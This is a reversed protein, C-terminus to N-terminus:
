VNCGVVRNWINSLIPLLFRGQINLSNCITGTIKWESVTEQLAASDTACESGISITDPWLFLWVHVPWAETWASSHKRWGPTNNNPIWGWGSDVLWDQDIGIPCPNTFIHSLLVGSNLYMHIQLITIHRQQCTDRNGVATCQSEMASVHM